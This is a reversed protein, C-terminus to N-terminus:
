SVTPSVVQSATFVLRRGAITVLSVMLLYTVDIGSPSIQALTGVGQFWNVAMAAVGAANASIWPNITNPPTILLDGVGVPLGDQRTVTVSSISAITDGLPSLLAFLDLGRADVSSTAMVEDLPVPDSSTGSVLTLFDIPLNM